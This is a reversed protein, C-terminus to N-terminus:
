HIYTAIELANSLAQEANLMLLDEIYFELAAAHSKTIRRMMPDKLELDERCEYDDPRAMGLINAEIHELATLADASSPFYGVVYGEGISHDFARIQYM